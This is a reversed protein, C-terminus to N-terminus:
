RVFIRYTIPDLLAGLLNAARTRDAAQLLELFLGPSRTWKPRAMECRQCKQGNPHVLQRAIALLGRQGPERAVQCGLMRAQRRCSIQSPAFSRTAARFMPLDPESDGVAITEADPSLLWNRLELLGAGKDVEKAVITTDITTQHFTLRDLGLSTMMRQITLTPLPAPGRHGSSLLLISRLASPIASRNLLAAKDEYTCARITYQYRDDLFIGPLQELAKRLKELQRLSEASVLVRGQEGVADWLYSGYEAVGGVLRYARCYERVEAASRATDVAVPFQHAHLLALAQIGAATTSPFGFLRRDLVGDIDLVVLPSRWALDQPPEFFAACHRATQVTLFNWAAMFRQHFEQQRDALQPHGFLQEQASAMARLGAVLKNMFLRQEVDADGSEDIYRGVLRGEEALSLALELCTEALDYAPDMVNLENKGLGHHEYDTKLPGRPGAIWEARQMRADILTPVPCPEKCLGRRIRPRMLVPTIFRGYANSLVKELLRFGDHHRHLGLSPMSNTKLSLRGARAAVYSATNGIREERDGNDDPTAPPQPFWEMYLIGDRLGLIPPVFGSLRQGALFAHYGLWGWGVSKALVYRTETEGSRTQLRVEYIRKLRTGRADASMSLLRANFQEASGGTVLWANTFDRMQLYKALRGEVVEPELLRQKHWQELGLSLIVTDTHALSKTWDRKAPNAPVLVAVRGPTFGTSCAMQVAQVIANGTHPPDDVIVAIHGQRGCRTLEARERAGLGKVPHVTMSDVTRYGEAKLLACLLPAFYSGATRLGVILVPQSREPFRGVLQRGLALVDFHSLDLRRFASPFYIHEAQLDCPLPLPLVAALGRGAAVVAAPDHMGEAIFVSLFVDLAARCNKRWRRVQALRWQRPIAALKETGWGLARFLRMGALKSPLRLTPGRLYEDMANLLSCSLLYVNTMVEATQWAPRPEPLKALEGRLYGVTERVTPFPNLCWEYGQYFDLETQLLKEQGAEAAWEPSPPREVLVRESLQTTELNM